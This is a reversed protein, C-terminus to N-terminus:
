FGPDPSILDAHLAPAGTAPEAHPASVTIVDANPDRKFLLRSHGRPVEVLVSIPTRGKVTFAHEGTADAIRLVSQKGNPVVADFVLRVVGATKAAFDAAGVGGQAVFAYGVFGDPARQPAAFGGPLTVFAPAAPANAVAILTDPPFDSLTVAANTKM